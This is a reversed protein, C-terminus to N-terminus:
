SFDRDPFIVPAVLTWVYIFVCTWSSVAKVWFSGYNASLMATEADPRYWNTLSMMVYLTALFMMCNFMAYSYAVGEKENDWVTQGGNEAKELAPGEDANSTDVGGQLPLCCSTM